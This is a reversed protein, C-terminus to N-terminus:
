FAEYCCYIILAFIVLIAVALTFFEATVYAFASYFAPSTCNNQTKWRDYEGYVVKVISTFSFLTNAFIAAICLGLLVSMFITICTLHCSEQCRQFGSSTSYLIYALIALVLLCLTIGSTIDYISVTQNTFGCKDNGHLGYHGISHTFLSM